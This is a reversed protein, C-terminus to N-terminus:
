LSYDGGGDDVSAGSSGEGSVVVEETERNYLKAVRPLYVDGVILANLARLVPLLEVPVIVDDKNKATVPLLGAKVTHWTNGKATQEGAEFQVWKSWMVKLQQLIKSLTIGNAYSTKSFKISYIGTFERDVFYVTMDRSCGGDLYKKQAYECKGCEGFESGMEGDASYCIPSNTSSGRPPWLTRGSTIALVAGVFSEDFTMGNTSYFQGKNVSKPRLPDSGVGHYLKMDHVLRPEVDGLLGDNVTNLSDFLGEVKERVEPTLADLITRMETATPRWVRLARDRLKLPLLAALKANEPHPAPVAAIAVPEAKTIATTQEESMQREEVPNVEANTESKKRSM